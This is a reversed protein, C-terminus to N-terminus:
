GRRKRRELRSLMKLNGLVEKLQGKVLRREAIAKDLDAPRKKGLYRSNVRKGVREKLYFYEHRGIKRKLISGRPLEKLRAKLRRDLDQYYELSDKLIGKLIAM